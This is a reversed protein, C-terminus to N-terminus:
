LVPHPNAEVMFTVKRNDPVHGFAKSLEAIIFAAKRVTVQLAEMQVKLADVETRMTGCSCSDAADVSVLYSVKDALDDLDIQSVIDSLDIEQAVEYTSVYSAIDGLDFQAAIDAASVNDLIEDLIVSEDISVTVEM